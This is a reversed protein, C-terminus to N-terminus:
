ALVLRNPVQPHEHQVIGSGKETKSPKQSDQNNISKESCHKHSHPKALHSDNLLDYCHSTKAVPHTWAQLDIM